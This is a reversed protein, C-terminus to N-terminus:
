SIFQRLAECFPLMGEDDGGMGIFVVNMIMHNTRGYPASYIRKALPLHSTGHRHDVDLRAPFGLPFLLVITFSRTPLNDHWSQAALGFNMHPYFRFQNFPLGFSMQPPRLPLCSFGNRRMDGGPFIVPLLPVLTRGIHMLM